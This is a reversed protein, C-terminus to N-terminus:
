AHAPGSATAYCTPASDKHIATFAVDTPETTHEQEGRQRCAAAARARVLRRLGGFARDGPMLEPRPGTAAVELSFRKGAVGARQSHAPLRGRLRAIGRRVGPACEAEGSMAGDAAPRQLLDHVMRADAAADSVDLLVGM